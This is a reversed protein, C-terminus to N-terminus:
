PAVSAPLVAVGVAGPGTHAGVIPGIITELGARVEITDDLAQWLERAHDPAFAHTVIVDAPEGDLADVVLEMLRPLARSWTRTKELLEVRGQDVHLIPKVRLMGGVVASSSSLRGGKKLYELTDVVVFSTVAASVREAVDAVEDLGAGRDAARQAALAAMAVGGGVQKSDVVRVPLPAEEAKKRGVSVTGSLASSIHVSVVGDLGADACDAYAEEFWAPSPQSTTPLVDAEALREYFEEVTITIRSMFTERGFAVSLPVVRLGHEEAVALSLDCTSDTVVAVGM